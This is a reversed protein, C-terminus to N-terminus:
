ASRLPTVAVAASITAAAHVGLSTSLAFTM